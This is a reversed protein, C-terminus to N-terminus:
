ATSWAKWFTDVDFTIGTLGDVLLVVYEGDVGLDATVGVASGFAVLPLSAVVPGISLVGGSVRYGAELKVAFGDGPTGSVYAAVEAVIIGIASISLSIPWQGATHTGLGTIEATYSSGDGRGVSM